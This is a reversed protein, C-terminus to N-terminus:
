DLLQITPCVRCIELSKAIWSHPVSDFGKKYDVWATSLNKRKSKVEELIAKNILLQDKCGYSRRRCGTQEAPLIDHRELFCYTRDTIISTLIKYM